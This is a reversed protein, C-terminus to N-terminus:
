QIGLVVGPETINKSITTCHQAAYLIHYIPPVLFLQNIYEGTVNHKGKEPQKIFPEDLLTSLNMSYQHEPFRAEFAKVNEDNFPNNMYNVVTSSFILEHNGIKEEFDELM